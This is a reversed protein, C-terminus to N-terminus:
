FQGLSLLMVFVRKQFTRNAMLSSYLSLCNQTALSAQMGQKELHEIVLQIKVPVRVRLRKGPSKRPVSLSVRTLGCRFKNRGAPSYDLSASQGERSEAAGESGGPLHDGRPRFRRVYKRGSEVDWCFM